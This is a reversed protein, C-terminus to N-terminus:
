RRKLVDLSDTGSHRRWVFVPCSELLCIHLQPWHQPKLCRLSDSHSRKVHSLSLSVLKFVNNHEEPKNMDLSENLKSFSVGALSCGFREMMNIFCKSEWMNWRWEWCRTWINCWHFYLGSTRDSSLPILTWGQVAPYFLVNSKRQKMKYRSTLLSQKNKVEWRVTPLVTFCESSHTVKVFWYLYVVVVVAGRPLM